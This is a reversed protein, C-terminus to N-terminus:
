RIYKLRMTTKLKTITVSECKFSLFPLPLTVSVSGMKNHLLIYDFTDVDVYVLKSKNEWNLSLHEKFEELGSKIRM